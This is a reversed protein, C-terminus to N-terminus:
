PRDMRIRRTVVQEAVNGLSLEHTLAYSRILALSDPLSLSTQQAVMGTAQHVRIQVPDGSELLDLTDRDDLGAQMLLLASTALSALLSLDTLHTVTLKGPVCRCVELVGVCISGLCLPFAFIAGVTRERAESAFVPWEECAGTLLQDALVPGRNSLAQHGPGEGLKLELEAIDQGLSGSSTAIGSPSGAGALLIAAGDLAFDLSLTCLRHAISTGPTVVAKQLIADRRSTEM